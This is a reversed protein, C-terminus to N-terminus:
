THLYTGRANTEHSIDLKLQFECRAYLMFEVGDGSEEAVIMNVALSMMVLVSFVMGSSAAGRMFGM